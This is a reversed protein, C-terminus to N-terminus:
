CYAVTSRALAEWKRRIPCDASFANHEKKDLNAKDCNKCVPPGGSLWEACESKLHPGGCHCCVDSTETCTRKSHGYGLCKSCQVLPSQDMVRIRQLDIHIVGAKILRNWIQPSVRVVVHSTHPNRTKKRYKVEMRDDKNLVDKFLHKNQMRIAKEIKEDTNYQLVDRLIILPDKNQIYDVNLDKGAMKLREKVRSIEKETRCGVIVKRDRAKRIKDIKLREEKANIAKRIKDMVEDGTEKEDNSTIIVSHMATKESLLGRQPGAVVSAYTVRDKIECEEKMCTVLAQLEAESPAILVADDAYLLCNVKIDGM